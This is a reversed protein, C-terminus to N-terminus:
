GRTAAIKASSIPNPLVMCAIVAMRTKQDPSLAAGQRAFQRYVVETLRRQEAGTALDGDTLAEDKGCEGAFGNEFGFDEIAAWEAISQQAELGSTVEEGNEVLDSM